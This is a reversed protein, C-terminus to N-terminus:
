YTQQTTNPTTAGPATEPLDITGEVNVDGGTDAPTARFLSGNFAFFAFAAIALIAVLLVILMMASSDSHDAPSDSHVHHVLDAM